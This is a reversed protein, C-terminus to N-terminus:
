IRLKSILTLDEVGDDNADVFSCDDIQYFVPFESWRASLISRDVFRKVWEGDCKLVKICTHVKTPAHAKRHQRTDAM